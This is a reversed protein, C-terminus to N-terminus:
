GRAARLFAAIRVPDKRGPSAEVGSSVDVARAGSAAIAARVNDADLGGSLFWPRPMSRGALMRWDFSAANGGPLAGARAPPKADFLLWDVADAYAQTADLDAPEAIALAKITGLGFRAALDRAREPPERGHLQILDPRLEAVIAGILADDADVTVAVRRVAAPLAAAIAGAQEPSVNRPSRPFFVFGAYDSTAAATAAEPTNIGCIKVAATM